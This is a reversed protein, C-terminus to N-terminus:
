ERSFVFEGPPVDPPFALVPTQPLGRETFVALMRAHLQSSTIAGGPESLADLLVEAFPSHGGAAGDAVREDARGAALVVKAPRTTFREEYAQAGAARLATLRGGYCCDMALLVHKAPADALFRALADFHLWRRRTPDRELTEGDAPILWGSSGSREHPVGHGAFYILARDERELEGELAVLAARIGDFSAQEELLTAVTWGPLAALRQALATVDRQANELPDFGGSRYAEGIGILLARSRRFGPAFSGPGAAAAAGSDVLGLGRLGSPDAGALGRWGLAGLLALLAAAGAVLGARRAPPGRRAPAELARLAAALEAASQPRGVPSRALCALVLQALPAPVGPAVRRPDAPASWGRELLEPLAERGTLCRYLVCGLAFLDSRASAAEGALQEPAPHAPLGGAGPRAGAARAAGYELTTGGLPALPKALRFGGLCASGDARLVVNAAGVDRHVAGAAHVAALAEALERALRLVEAPPLAGDRALREALPEGALPELVLVPGDPEELVDHLRQIGPHRLAALARAERLGTRPGREDDRAARARVLVVERGLSLDRARLEEREPESSLTELVEYRGAIHAREAM